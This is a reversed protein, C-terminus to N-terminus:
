CMSVNRLNQICFHSRRYYIEDMTGMADHLEDDETEGAIVVPMDHHYLEHEKNNQTKYNEM